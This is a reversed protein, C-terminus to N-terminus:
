KRQMRKRRCVSMFRKTLCYFSTNRCCHQRFWIESEKWIEKEECIRSTMREPKQSILTWYEFDCCWSQWRLLHQEYLSDIILAYRVHDVIVQMLSWRRVAKVCLWSPLWLNERLRWVFCPTVGRTPFSLSKAELSTGTKKPRKQFFAKDWKMQPIENRTKNRQPFSQLAMLQYHRMMVKFRGKLDFSADRSSAKIITKCWEHWSSVFLLLDRSHSVSLPWENVLLSKLTDELDTQRIGM